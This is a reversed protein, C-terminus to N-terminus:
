INKNQLYKNKFYEPNNEKFKKNNNIITEKYKENFIPKIKKAYEKMYDPNRERFKRGRERSALKIKEEKTIEEM